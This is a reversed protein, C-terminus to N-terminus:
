NAASLSASCPADGLNDLVEDLLSDLRAELAPSLGPSITASDVTVGLFTVPLARLSPYLCRLLKLAEVPSLHHVGGGRDELEDLDGDFRVLLGPQGPDPLADVLVVWPRRELMPALRLLDTGGEVADLNEPLRPHGKLLGVLRSGIGDDGALPNGLGVMLPREMSM